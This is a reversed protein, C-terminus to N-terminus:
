RDGKINPDGEIPAQCPSARVMCRWMSGVADGGVVEKVGQTIKGLVSEKVSSITCQKQINAANRLDMSREGYMWRVKNAWDRQADGWASEEGSRENSIGQMLPYCEIHSTADRESFGGQRRMVLGYVRTADRWRDERSQGYYRRSHDVWHYRPRHYPEDRRYFRAERRADRREKAREKKITDYIWRGDHDYRTQASAASAWTLAGVALAAMMRMTLMKIM